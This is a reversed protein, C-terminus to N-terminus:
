KVLPVDIADEVDWAVVEPDIQIETFTIGVNYTYKHAMEWDLDSPFTYTYNYTQAAGGQDLTYNITFSDASNGPVVLLGNGYAVSDNTVVQSGVASSGDAVPVYLPNGKKTAKAWSPTLVPEGAVNYNTYEVTLTGDTCAGNLAISNVTVAAQASTLNTKVTFNIWSLAHKFKMPVAAYDAGQTHTAQAAAYMLDNQDLVNNDTLVTVAKSAMPGEFSTESNDVKGGKETVALFSITSTSIPWYRGGTWVEGNENFETETFFNGPTVGDGSVLYASVAMNDETLFATGDVPAKTAARNVALFSIEQPDNDYVVETKNCAAFLMTAAAALFIFKKM